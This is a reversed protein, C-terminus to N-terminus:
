ALFSWGHVTEPRKSFYYKGDPSLTATTKVHLGDSRAEPETLAYADIM